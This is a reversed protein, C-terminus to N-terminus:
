NINTKSADVYHLSDNFLIADPILIEVSRMDAHLSWM